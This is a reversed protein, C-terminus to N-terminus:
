DWYNGRDVPFLSLFSVLLTCYMIIFHLYINKAASNVVKVAIM